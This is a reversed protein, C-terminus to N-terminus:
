QGLKKAIKIAEAAAEKAQVAAAAAARAAERAKKAHDEAANKDSGTVAPKMAPTPPKADKSTLLKTAPPPQKTDKTAISLKPCTPPSKFIRWGAKAASPKCHLSDCLAAPLTPKYGNGLKSTITSWLAKCGVIDTKMRMASAMNFARVMKSSLKSIGGSVVAKLMPLLRPKDVIKYRMLDLFNSLVRMNIKHWIAHPSATCSRPFAGGKRYTPLAQLVFRGAGGMVGGSAESMFAASAYTSLVDLVSQGVELPNEFGFSMPMLLDVFYKVYKPDLVRTTAIKDMIAKFIKDGMPLNKHFVARLVIVFFAAISKIKGPWNRKTESMIKTAIKNTLPAETSSEMEALMLKKLAKLVSKHDTFAGKRPDVLGLKMKTAADMSLVKDLFARYMYFFLSDIGWHDLNHGPSDPLTRANHYYWSGWTLGLVADQFGQDKQVEPHKFLQLFAANSFTNCPENVWGTKLRTTENFPFVNKFVPIHSLPVPNYEAYGPGQSCKPPYPVTRFAAAAVRKTENTAYKHFDSISSAAFDMGFGTFDEPHELFFKQYERPSWQVSKMIKALFSKFFLNAKSKFYAVGKEKVKNVIKKGTKVAKKVFGWKERETTGADNLDEALPTNSSLARELDDMNEINHERAMGKWDEFTVGVQQLFEDEDVLKELGSLADENLDSALDIELEASLQPESSFSSLSGYAAQSTILLSLFVLLRRGQM